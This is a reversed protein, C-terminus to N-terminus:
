FCNKVTRETVCSWAYDVMKMVDLVAIIPLKERDEIASILKRVHEKYYETKFSQIIGQDLPQLKLNTNLSLFENM